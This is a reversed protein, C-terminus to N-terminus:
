PAEGQGTDAPIPNAVKRVKDRKIGGMDRVDVYFRKGKPAVYRCKTERGWNEYDETAEM